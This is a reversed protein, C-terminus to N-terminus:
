QLAISQLLRAVSFSNNLLGEVFLRQQVPPRAGTALSRCDRCMGRTYGGQIDGQIDGRYIGGTYGGQIDGRYIGGTYGGQIDGQIDGRYIRGTYGGQIDGQM